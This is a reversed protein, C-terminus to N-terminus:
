QEVLIKDDEEEYVKNLCAFIISLVVAFVTFCVLFAHSTVFYNLEPSLIALGLKGPLLSMGICSGIALFFYLTGFFKGAAKPVYPNFHFHSLVGLFTALIGSFVCRHIGVSIWPAVQIVSGPLAWIGVCLVCTAGLILLGFVNRQKWSSQEEELELRNYPRKDTLVTKAMDAMDILRDRQVPSSLGQAACTNLTFNEGLAKLPSDIVDSVSTTLEAKRALFHQFFQKEYRWVFLGIFGTLIVAACASFILQHSGASLWPLLISLGLGSPLWPMGLCSTIVLFASLMKLSKGLNPHFTAVYSSSAVYLVIAIFVMLVLVIPALHILLLNTNFLALGDLVLNLGM